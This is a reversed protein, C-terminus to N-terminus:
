TRPRLELSVAVLAGDALQLGAEHVVTGKVLDSADCDDGGLDDDDDRAGSRRDRDYDTRALIRDGVAVDGDIRADGGPAQDGGSGFDECGIKTLATVLVSVRRGTALEIVLVGDDFRVVRGPNERGDETGDDDSDPDLPDHGTPRERGDLLRDDDTDRYRPNTGARFEDRNKLGDRDPDRGAQKFRLSLGYRKEWRDPLGDRNRDAQTSSSSKAPAATPLALVGILAAAALLLTM